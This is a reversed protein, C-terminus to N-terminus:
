SSSAIQSVNESAVRSRGKLPFLSRSVFARVAAEGQGKSSYLVNIANNCPPSPVGAGTSVM